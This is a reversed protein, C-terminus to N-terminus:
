VLHVDLNAKHQTVGSVKVPKEINRLNSQLGLVVMPIKSSTNKKHGSTPPQAATAVERVEEERVKEEAEEAELDVTQLHRTIWLTLQQNTGSRM